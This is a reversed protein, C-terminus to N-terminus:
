REENAFKPSEKYQIAKTLNICGKAKLEERRKDRYKKTYATYKSLNEKRYKTQSEYIKDKNKQYYKRRKEKLVNKREESLNKYYDKAYANAKDKNKERYARQCVRRREIKEEASLKEKGM